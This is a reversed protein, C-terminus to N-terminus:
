FALIVNVINYDQNNNVPLRSLTHQESDSVGGGGGCSGRWLGM